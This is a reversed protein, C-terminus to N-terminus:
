AGGFAFVATSGLLWAATLALLVLIVVTLGSRGSRPPSYFTVSLSPVQHGIWEPADDPAINDWSVPQSYRHHFERDLM